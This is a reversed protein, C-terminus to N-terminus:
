KRKRRSKTKEPWDNNAIRQSTVYTNAAPGMVTSLAASKLAYKLEKKAADRKSSQKSSAQKITKYNKNSFTEDVAKKFKNYKEIAKKNGRKTARYAYPISGGLLGAGAGAGLISAGILGTPIMVTARKSNPLIARQAAVQGKISGYSALGGLAGAGILGAGLTAMAKANEKQEKANTHEKLEKLKATAKKYHKQLAIKDGKEIAKRVGWKMGKIGYHALYEDSRQIGYYQAM